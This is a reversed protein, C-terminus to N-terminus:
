PDRAGNIENRIEDFSACGLFKRAEQITLSANGYGLEKKLFNDLQRGFQKDLQNITAKNVAVDDNLGSRNALASMCIVNSGSSEIYGRLGALTGGLTIVDDVLIFDQDTPVSGYFSPVNAVRYWFSTQDRKINRNQFITDCVDLNLEKALWNAYSIALANGTQEPTVAPAAVLPSKAGICDVIRDLVDEKYLEDILQIAANVNQNRKAEDYFRHRQLSPTIAKEANWQTHIFVPPFNNQWPVRM